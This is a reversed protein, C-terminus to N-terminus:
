LVHKLPHTGKATPALKEGHKYMDHHRFTFPNSFSCTQGNSATLCFLNSHASGVLDPLPPPQILSIHLSFVVPQIVSAPRHCSMKLCKISLM